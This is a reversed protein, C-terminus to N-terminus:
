AMGLALEGPELGAFGPGLGGPTVARAAVGRRALFYVVVVVTTCAAAPVAAGLTRRWGVRGLDRALFVLLVAAPLTAAHEKAGIALAAGVAVGLLWAPRQESRLASILAVAYGVAAM